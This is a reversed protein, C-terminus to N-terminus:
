EIMVQLRRNLRHDDADSGKYLPSTEGKGEIILRSSLEPKKKVLYEKVMEARSYSLQMNYDDGGRVDTHGVLRFSEGQYAKDSLANALVDLNARSFEDVDSSNDLFNIRINISPKADKFSLGLGQRKTSLGRQVQETTIPKESLSSDLDKSLDTMWSPAEDVLTLAMQLHSLAKERNGLISLVEGYRGIAMASDANNGALEYAREYAKLADDLEGLKQESYGLLYWNQYQSCDDVAKQSWKKAESYNDDLSAKQALKFYSESQNCNTAYAGMPLVLTSLLVYSAINKM